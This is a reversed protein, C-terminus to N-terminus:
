DILTGGSRSGEKGQECERRQAEGQVSRKRMGRPIPHEARDAATGSDKQLDLM